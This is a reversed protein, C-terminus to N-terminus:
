MVGKEQVSTKVRCARKERGKNRMKRKTSGVVSAYTCCREGGRKKEEM